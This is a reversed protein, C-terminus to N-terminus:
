LHGLLTDTSCIWIPNVVICERLVHLWSNPPFPANKGPPTQWLLKLLLLLFVPFGLLSAVRHTGKEKGSHSWVLSTYGCDDASVVMSSDWLLILPIESVIKSICKMRGGEPHARSLNRSDRLSVPNFPLSLPVATHGSGLWLLIIWQHHCSM